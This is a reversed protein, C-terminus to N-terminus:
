GALTFKGLSPLVWGPNDKGAQTNNGLWPLRVWGQYDEGAQNIKGLKPFRVWGPYDWGAQTIKGLRPIKVWGPYDWGTKVKLRSFRGLSFKTKSLTLNGKLLQALLKLMFFSEQCFFICM